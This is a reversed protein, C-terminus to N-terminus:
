DGWTYFTHQTLDFADANSRTLSFAFQFLPRYYQEVVAEYELSAMSDSERRLQGTEM